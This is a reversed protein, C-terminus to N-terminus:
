STPAQFYPELERASRPTGVYATVGGYAWPQVTRRTLPASLGGSRQVRVCGLNVVDWRTAGDGHLGLAVWRGSLTTCRGAHRESASDVATAYASAGNGTVTGSWMLTSVGTDQSYVCVSMSTPDLDTPGATARLVPRTPCGHADIDVLEASGLVKRRLHPDDAFVTVRQGGVQRTEAVTGAIDQVGVALPSDFWAADGLPTSGDSGFPVCREDTISPRGVFGTHLSVYAEDDSPSLVFAENSGCSGLHGPGSFSESTVPSSGWGWTSPVRIQVGAYSEYRWTPPVDVHSYTIESTRSAHSVYAVGGLLVVVALAGAWAGRHRRPPKEVATSASPRTLLQTAASGAHAALHDHVSAVPAQQQEAVEAMGRQLHRRAASESCGLIEAIEADTREELVRLVVAARRPMSCARVVQRRAELDPDDRSVREWAPRIRALASTVAADAADADQTVASAFALLRPTRAVAWEDFGGTM